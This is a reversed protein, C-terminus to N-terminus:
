LGAGWLYQYGIAFANFDAGITTFAGTSLAVKVSQRRSLPVSVTTGVRSNRQLDLRRVGDVSTRGGVFFNADFGVWLRRRLNYSLHFQTTGIPKQERVQGRFNNNATFLWAGAYFDLIWRGTAHSLGLEPKFAWRNSGINILKNPDLPTDVENLHGWSRTTPKM